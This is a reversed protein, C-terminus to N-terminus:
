CDKENLVTLARAVQRRLLKFRGLDINAAASTGRALRLNLMEKKYNAILAKLPGGGMNRMEDIKDM